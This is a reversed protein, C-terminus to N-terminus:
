FPVEEDNTAPPIQDDLEIEAVEPEQQLVKGLMEHVEEESAPRDDPIVLHTENDRLIQKLQDNNMSGYPIAGGDVMDIIADKTILWKRGSPSTSISGTLQELRLLTAMRRLHEKEDKSFKWETSKKSNSGQLNNEEYWM